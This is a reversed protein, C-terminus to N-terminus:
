PSLGEDGVRGSDWEVGGRNEDGGQGAAGIGDRRTRGLPRVEQHEPLISNEVSTWVMKADEQFAFPGRFADHLGTTNFSCIASGYISNRLVSDSFPAHSLETEHPIM